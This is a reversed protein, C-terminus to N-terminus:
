KGGIKAIFKKIGRHILMQITAPLIICLIIMQVVMYSLCHNEYEVLLEIIEKERVVYVLLSMVMYWIFIVGMDHIM